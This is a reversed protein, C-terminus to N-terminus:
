SRLGRCKPKVLPMIGYMKPHGKRASEFAKKASM